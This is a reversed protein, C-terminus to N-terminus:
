ARPLTAASDEAVPMAVTTAARDLMGSLLAELDRVPTLEGFLQNSAANIRAMCDARYAPDNAIRCALRVYDSGSAAVLDLFDIAKYLAYGFRQRQLQGAMTVVPAGVSFAELTTNYGNFKVTDLVVDSLQLVRLYRAYDMFPLFLLQHALHPYASMRKELASRWHREKSEFLVIVASPDRECILEFLHDMDPQLKFLQQPCCYLNKGEPLGLQGRGETGPPCDPHPYCTINCANPMLFLRETYDDQAGDREYLPSSVYYDLAPIGTTDPHGFWTLQVPALRSFALFYSLPAMGIDMYFLGDLELGAITERALRLDSIPVEVVEDALRDIENAMEDQQNAPGLRVAFVQFRSRDLWKFFGHSISGMSHTRLFGSAVGIRAPRRPMRWKKVHPAEWALDPCAQRYVTAMLRNMETNAIGHYSFRFYTSPLQLPDQISLDRREALSRLISLTRARARAVFDESDPIAPILLADRLLYAGNNLPDLAALRELTSSAAALQQAEEQALALNRLLGIDSPANASAQLLIAAADEPRMDLLLIAGLNRAADVNKPDSALAERLLKEADSRLSPNGLLLVSRNYLCLSLMRKAASTDKGLKVSARCLQEAEQFQGRALFETAKELRKNM